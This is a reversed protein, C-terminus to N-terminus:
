LSSALCAYSVIVYDFRQEGEFSLLKSGGLRLQFHYLMQERSTHTLSKKALLARLPSSEVACHRANSSSMAWLSLGRTQSSLDLTSM